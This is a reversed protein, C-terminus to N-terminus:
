INRFKAFNQVLMMIIYLKCRVVFYPVSADKKGGRNTSDDFMERNRFALIMRM